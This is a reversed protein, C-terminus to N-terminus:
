VGVPNVGGLNEKMVILMFYFLLILCMYTVVLKFLEM